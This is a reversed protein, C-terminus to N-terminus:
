DDFTLKKGSFKLKARDEMQKKAQWSPHLNTTDMKASASSNTSGNSQYGGRSGQFGGRSRQYGGRSGQFGGRSGQFGSRSGQFGGRSGQSGGRSDQFNSRRMDTAHERRQFPRDSLSSKFSSNTGDRKQKHRDKIENYRDYSSYSSPQFGLDDDARRNRFQEREYDVESNIIENGNQDLFFPDQELSYKKKKRTIDKEEPEESDERASLKEVDDECSTSEEDSDDSGSDKKLIPIEDFEKIEDLNFQKIVMPGSSKNALVLPKKEKSEVEEPKHDDNLLNKLFDPKDDLDVDSEDSFGGLQYNDFDIPDPNSNSDSMSCVDDHDGDIEEQVVDDKINSEKLKKVKKESKNESKNENKNNKVDSKDKEEAEYTENMSEDEANNVVTEELDSEEGKVELKAEIEKVKILKEKWSKRKECRAKYQIFVTKWGDIKPNNKIKNISEVVLKSFGIRALGIDKITLNKNKTLYEQLQMNENEFTFIAVDNFKLKKIEEIEEKLHECKRKNKGLQLENGKKNNLLKIKRILKQIENIKAKKVISKVSVIQDNFQILSANMSIKDITETM